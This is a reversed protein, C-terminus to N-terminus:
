VGAALFIEMDGAPKPTAGTSQGGLAAPMLAAIKTLTEVRFDLAEVLARQAATMDGPVSLSKAHAALTQAQIRLQDVQVQVDLAPKGGAGALASFFAKAVQEDSEHAIQSVNHNYDKLSQQEQSKKCANVLLVILILLVVAVGAAVRRRVTVTHQDVGGGAHQPRRPRPPAAAAGAPPGAPRSPRQATEEGDDFFS